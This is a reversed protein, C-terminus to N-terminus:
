RRRARGQEVEMRSKEGLIYDMNDYIVKALKSATAPNVRLERGLEKALADVTKLDHGGYCMSFVRTAITWYKQWDGKPPNVHQRILHSLRKMYEGYRRHDEKLAVSAIADVAERKGIEWPVEITIKSM